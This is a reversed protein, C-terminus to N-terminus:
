PIVCSILLIHTILYRIKLMSIFLTPHDMVSCYLRSLQGQQATFHKCSTILHEDLSHM